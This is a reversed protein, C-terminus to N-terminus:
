AQEARTSIFEAHSSPVPTKVEAGGYRFSRARAPEGLLTTEVLKRAVGLAVYPRRVDFPNEKLFTKWPGLRTQTQLIGKVMGVDTLMGLDNARGVFISGVIQDGRWLLNRYVHGSINSIKMAEADPAQWNGFSACQLGCADLVNIALSGSYRVARGAMNAGAVRGHDVATPQIAHIERESSYMVPGQAVDGGAYVHPFNTQMHENVLVGEATEIGSGALFGTNPRIGTAIIVLDAELQRGDGLLVTKTNDEGPRFAKVTTGCYMEVGKKSLWDAVVSAAGADLMRPLVHSEREVVALRWGRKFMANLVIFGIFGAGVMVVRPRALGAVEELAAETHALTWLPQVGPMDAGPVDLRTPSAGTAILLDDFALSEGDALTLKKGQPDVKAVRAGIRAEVKLRQWYARDATLVHERPIRGALWYPLAMRAHAPEDSLLTIRSDGGDFQRITEVANVAAPGGGIIVHHTAM